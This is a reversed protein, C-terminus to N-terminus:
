PEASEGPLHERICALLEELTAPKPLFRRGGSVLGGRAAEHGGVLATLFVVPVDRLAHDAKFQLAVDGGDMEPMMVDLFVLDPRFERAADLAHDARNEERVEFGGAQELNLRLM